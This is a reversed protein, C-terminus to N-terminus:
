FNIIFFADYKLETLFLNIFNVDAMQEVFLRTNELFVSMNHDCLLNLNLRHKRM